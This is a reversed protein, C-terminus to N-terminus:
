ESAAAEQRAPTRMVVSWVMASIMARQVAMEQMQAGKM